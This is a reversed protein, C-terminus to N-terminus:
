VTVREKFADGTLLCRREVANVSDDSLIKAGSEANATKRGFLSVVRENSYKKKGRAEGVVGTGESKRMEADSDNWHRTRRCETASTDETQEFEEGTTASHPGADRGSEPEVCM